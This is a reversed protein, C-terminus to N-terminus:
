GLIYQYLTDNNSGIYLYRDNSSIELCSIWGCDENVRHILQLTDLNWVAISKDKSVSIFFTKNKACCLGQIESKHANIKNIINKSNVDWYIISRDGSASILIKQNSALQLSSIWSKHANESRFEHVQNFKILSWKRITNDWSGSFLFNEDLSVTMCSVSAFHGLLECIKSMSSMIYIYIKSDECGLIIYEATLEIINIISKCIEIEEVQQSLQLNWSYLIGARGGYYLLKSDPTAKMCNIRTTKIQYECMNQGYETNFILIKSDYTLLAMKKMNNLCLISLIKDGSKKYTWIKELGGPVLNCSLKRNCEECQNYNNSIFVKNSKCYSCSPVKINFDKDCLLLNQYRKIYKEKIGCITCVDSSIGNYCQNCCLLNAFDPRFETSNEFNDCIMCNISLYIPIKTSSLKGKNGNTLLEKNFTLRQFKVQYKGNKEQIKQKITEITDKPEYFINMTLGNFEKVEIMYAIILDLVSNNTISYYGLTHNDELIKDKYKFFQCPMLQTYEKCLEKLDAIQYISYAQITLLFQQTRLNNVKVTLLQAASVVSYNTINYSYLIKENALIENNYILQLEEQAIGIQQYILEKLEETKKYPSIKIALDDETLTKIIIEISNEESFDSVINFISYKNFNYDGFKSNYGIIKGCHSLTNNGIDIHEQNMIKNKISELSEFYDINLPIIKDKTYEIFYDGRTFNRFDIFVESNEQIDYHVLRENGYLIREEYKINFNSYQIGIERKIQEKLEGLTMFWNVTVRYPPYPYNNIIISSKFNAYNDPTIEQNIKYIILFSSSNINNESLKTLNSKIIKATSNGEINQNCHWIILEPSAKEKIIDILCQLSDSEYVAITFPQSNFQYVVIPFFLGVRKDGALESGYTIFYSALPMDNRLVTKNFLINFDTVNKLSMLRNKQNRKMIKDKLKNKLQVVTDKLDCNLAIIEEEIHLFLCAPRVIIQSQERIHYYYITQNNDLIISNFILEQHKILLNLTKKILRKMDKICLFPEIKITFKKRDIYNINLVIKEIQNLIIEKSSPNIGVVLLPAYPMLLVEYEEPYKSWSEELCIHPYPDTKSLAIKLATGCNSFIKASDQNKTLSLIGSFFLPKQLQFAEEFISYDQTHIGRYLYIGQFHLEKRKIAEYYCLSSSYSLAHLNNQIFAENYEKYILNTTYLYIIAKFLDNKRETLINAIDNGKIKNLMKMEDLIQEFKIIDSNYIKFSSEKFKSYINQDFIYERNKRIEKMYNSKIENVVDSFNNTVFKVIPYNKAWESHLAINACFIIACSINDLDASDLVDRGSSGSSILVLEKEKFSKIYSLVEPLQNFRKIQIDQPCENFIQDNEQGYSAKDFWVVDAKSKVFINSSQKVIKEQANDNVKKGINEM